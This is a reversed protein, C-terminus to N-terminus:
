SDIGSGFKNSRSLGQIPVIIPTKTNTKSKDSKCIVSDLINAVDKNHGPINAAISPIADLITARNTSDLIGNPIIPKIIAELSFLSFCFPIRRNAIYKMVDIRTPM